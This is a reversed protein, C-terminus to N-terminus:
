GEEENGTEVTKVGLLRSRLSTGSFLLQHVDFVAPGDYYHETQMMTGTRVEAEAICMGKRQQRGRCYVYGQETTKRQLACVRASNDAEAICM